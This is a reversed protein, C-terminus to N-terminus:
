AVPPRLLTLAMTLPTSARVAHRMGPPMAIWTGAHAARAEGDLTVEAEGDLVEIIAARGSTHETLEQGADFAFVTLTLAENEHITRSLIGGTPVEVASRLDEIFGYGPM